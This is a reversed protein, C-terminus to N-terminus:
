AAVRDLGDNFLQMLAERAQRAEKLTCIHKRVERAQAGFEADVMWAIHKRAVRVGLQGGYFELTEDCLTLLSQLM